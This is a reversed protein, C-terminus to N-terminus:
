AQPNANAQRLRRHVDEQIVGTFSDQFNYYNTENFNVRRNFINYFVLAPIAVFLGMATAILAESIGPAIAQINVQQLSGLSTFVEIIGWVTGFLGIYPSISTIISLINLGFDQDEVEESITSTMKRNILDMLAEPTQYKINSITKYSAVGESFVRSVGVLNNQKETFEILKSFGVGQNYTNIFAKDQRKVRGLTIFRNIILTWSWLSLILLLIMVIKVVLSAELFIHYIFELNM